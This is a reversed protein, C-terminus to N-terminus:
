YCFFALSRSSEPLITLLLRMQASRSYRLATGAQSNPQTERAFDPERRLLHACVDRANAASPPQAVLM